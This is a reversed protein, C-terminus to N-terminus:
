IVLEPDIIVGQLFIPEVRELGDHEKIKVAECDEDYVALSTAGLVCVDDEKVGFKKRIEAVMKRIVPHGPSLTNSYYSEPFSDMADIERQREEVAEILPPYTAMFQAVAAKSDNMSSWGIGHRHTYLVKM